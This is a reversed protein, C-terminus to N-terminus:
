SVHSLPSDESAPQMSPILREPVTFCLSSAPTCMCREQLTVIFKKTDEYNHTM